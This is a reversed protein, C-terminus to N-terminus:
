NRRSLSLLAFGFGAVNWAIVVGVGFWTVPGHGPLLTARVLLAADDIPLPRHVAHV